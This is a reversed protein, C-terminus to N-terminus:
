KQKMKKCPPHWRRQTADVAWGWLACGSRCNLSSAKFTEKRSKNEVGGHGEDTSAVRPHDEKSEAVRHEIRNAVEHGEAQRERCEASDKTPADNWNVLVLASEM